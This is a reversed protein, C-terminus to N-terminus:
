FLNEYIKIQTAMKFDLTVDIYVIKTWQTPNRTAQFMINYVLIFTRVQRYDLNYCKYQHDDKIYLIATLQGM